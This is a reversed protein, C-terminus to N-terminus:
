SMQLVAFLKCVTAAHERSTAEGAFFLVGDVHDGLAEMDDPSSGLAIYSYAGRFLPDQLRNIACLQCPALSVNTSPINVAAHPLGSHHPRVTERDGCIRCVHLATKEHSDESLGPTLCSAIHLAACRAGAPSM